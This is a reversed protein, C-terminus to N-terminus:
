SMARPSSSARSPSIVPSTSTPVRELAVPIVYPNPSPWRQKAFELETLTYAGPKLSAASMLFLFVDSQAVEQRIKTNFDDGGRLNKTDLFVTHGSAGAAIASAVQVDNDSNHSYSIFIKM